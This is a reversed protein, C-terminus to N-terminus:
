GDRLQRGTLHVFVDELTPRHTALDEIELGQDAAFALLSELAPRLDGVSAVLHGDRVEVERVAALSSVRDTFAGADAKAFRFTIIGDADLSAVVDKPTGRAIVQGQDVIALDDALKEAEDMYHTTLLVSGERAKFAEIVSWVLRRAQPDLGTTPEDLVLLRPRGILACGLALRQKQGGSLTAVRAEEKEELGILALTERPDEGERYFSRFLRLAEGVQVKDPLQSEQLQVGLDQRIADADDKWTRGFLAIRGADPRRLGVIMEVSTTKGAGNPGLLGLCAGPEIRLDVGRVAHVDGYRKELGQAELAAVSVKQNM